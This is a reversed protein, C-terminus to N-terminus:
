VGQAVRRFRLRALLSADYEIGIGPIKHKLKAAAHGTVEGPERRAYASVGGQADDFAKERIADKPVPKANKGIVFALAAVTGYKLALVAVPALPIAM